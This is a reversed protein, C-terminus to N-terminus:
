LKCQIIAKIPLYTIYIFILRTVANKMGKTFNCLTNSITMGGLIECFRPKEGNKENKTANPSM